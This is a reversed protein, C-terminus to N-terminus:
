HAQAAGRTISGAEVVDRFLRLDVFDVRMTPREIGRLSAVGFGGNRALLNILMNMYRSPLPRAPIRAPADGLGATSRSKGRLVVDTVLAFKVARHQPSRRHLHSALPRERRM